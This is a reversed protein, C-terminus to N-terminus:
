QERQEPAQQRQATTVATTRLRCVLQRGEVRSQGRQHVAILLPSLHHGAVHLLDPPTFVDVEETKLFHPLDVHLLYAPTFVDVEETKLFHPLDVHLLYSNFAHPCRSRRNESNHYTLTFFVSFRSSLSKKHSSMSKWLFHPLDFCGWLNHTHM